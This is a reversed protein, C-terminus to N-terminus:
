YEKTFTLQVYENSYVTMVSFTFAYNHGNIVSNYSIINTVDPHSMIIDIIIADFIGKNRIKEFLPLGYNFRYWLEKKFISLRQILSSKVAWQKEDYNEDKEGEIIEPKVKMNMVEFYGNFSACTFYVYHNEYDFGNNAKSVDVKAVENITNYSIHVTLNQKDFIVSNNGNVYAYINNEEETLTEDKVFIINNFNENTSFVKIQEEKKLGVSGFWIVNQRTIGTETDYYNRVKRCRM